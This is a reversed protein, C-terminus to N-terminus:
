RCLFTYIGRHLGFDDEQPLQSIRVENFQDTVAVLILVPKEDVLEHGSAAQLFMEEFTLM